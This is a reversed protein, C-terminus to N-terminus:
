RFEVAAVNAPDPAGGFANSVGDGAEVLTDNELSTAGKPPV